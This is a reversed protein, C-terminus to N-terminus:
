RPKGAEVRGLPRHYRRGPRDGVVRYPMSSTVM